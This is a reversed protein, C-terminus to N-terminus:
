KERIIRIVMQNGKLKLSKETTKHTLVEWQDSISQIRQVVADESGACKQREIQFQCNVILHSM